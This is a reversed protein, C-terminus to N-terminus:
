ACMWVRVEVERLGRWADMGPSQVRDISHQRVKVSSQGQITAEYREIVFKNRQSIAAAKQSEAEIARAEIVQNDGRLQENIQQYERIKLKMQRIRNQLDNITEQAESDRHSSNTQIQVDDLRQQLTEKESQITDLQTKLATTEFKANNLHSTLDQIRAYLELIQSIKSANEAKVKDLDASASEKQSQLNVVKQNLEKSLMGYSSLTQKTRNPEAKTEQVKGLAESIDRENSARAVQSGKGKLSPKMRVYTGRLTNVVKVSQNQAPKQAAPPYGIFAIPTHARSVMPFYSETLNLDSFTIKNDVSTCTVIKQSCGCAETRTEDDLNKISDKHATRCGRALLESRRHSCTSERHLTVCCQLKLHHLRFLKEAENDEWSVCIEGKKPGPFARIGRLMNKLCEGVQSKLNVSWDGMHDKGARIRDLEQLVQSCIEIVIHDCSFIEIPDVDGSNRMQSLICDTSNEGHSKEFDMWKEHLLLKSNDIDLYPDLGSTGAKKFVLLFPQTQPDLALAVRLTRALSACYPTDLISATQSNCMINKRYELSTQPLKYKTLPKWLTDPLLVPEKKLLSKIMASDKSANQPGYYFNDEKQQLSSWIAEAMYRTMKNVSNRIDQWAEELDLLMDIYMDLMRSGNKKVAEEWVKALLTAMQEPDEMGKRDRGIHGQSFDYGYRFANIRSTKELFLEKLYIKGRFNPDLILNGSSTSVIEKPRDFHICVKLWGMVEAETISKGQKGRVCGIKVSVDKWPSAERFILSKTTQPNLEQQTPKKKVESLFCWLTKKEKTGWRFNWYFKSATIEAQHGERIMLLAALKFGEGHTGAMEDDDAKSTGGMDLVERALQSNYNCLEVMGRKKDFALFGLIQYTDPNHITIRFGNAVERHVYKLKDRSVGSTKSMADNWNQCFERFINSKTWDRVYKSSLGLRQQCPKLTSHDDNDDPLGLDVEGSDEYDDM